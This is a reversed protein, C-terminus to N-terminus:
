KLRQEVVTQMQRIKEHCDSQSEGKAAFYCKIKPETGSPRIAMWSVDTFIYKLVNSQPLTLKETQSLSSGDSRVRTRTSALYDEVTELTLGPVMPLDKRLNDMVSQIHKEMGEEQLEVSFPQEEYYGFREFLDQLAEVLTRGEAKHFAAMEAIALSAQVADKDRVIPSILYGYSEEFGFLFTHAHSQEYKTIGSGIYKFGTLTNETPIGYSDAVAEALASTVVTKFIIGNEPLRGEAKRTRLLFDTLLGGVQNGSLHQYEGSLTRVAIGVRDTDPDTGLVLDANVKRALAIAQELAIAEGPNPTKLGPFNGNPEAQELAVTLQNYSATQLVEQVPITGTGFLPTYVLAINSRATDHVSPFRIEKVVADIYTRRVEKPTWQFLGSAIAEDLSMTPIKFADRIETMYQSVIATEDPLLQAGDPGYAKYGNYEPPNHSATIMVGGAAHLHRLSFSVEPTPCLYPSVFARVGTAAITQGAEEAFEKSMHRSDYGIVIGRAAADQGQQLVYQALARSTKRVTYINMRNPGAGLIGRMGGTGFELTEAFREDIGTRNGRISVLDERLQKPLNPQSLWKEYESLVDM